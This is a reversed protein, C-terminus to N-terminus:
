PITSSLNIWHCRIIMDKNHNEGAGTAATGNMFAM